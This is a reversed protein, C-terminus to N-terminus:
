WACFNAFAWIETLVWLTQKCGAFLAQFGWLGVLVWHRVLQFSAKIGERCQTEASCWVLSCIIRYIIFLLATGNCAMSASPPSSIYSRSMWSRPVLHPHTTLTVVRGRKVGPVWQVPPQTPGLAPRSVSALRFIRQGQRSRVGIARDDLGYDSVISGSIVRSRPLYYVRGFHPLTWIKQFSLWLDFNCDVDLLSCVLYPSYKTVHLGSDKTKGGGRGIIKGTRTLTFSSFFSSRLCLRVFRQLFYKSWVSIFCCSFHHCHFWWIPTSITRNQVV